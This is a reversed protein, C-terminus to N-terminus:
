TVNEKDEVKTDPGIGGPIYGSVWVVLGWQLFFFFVFPLFSGFSSLLSFHPSALSLSLRLVGFAGALLWIAPFFSGERSGATPLQPVHALLGLAAAWSCRGRDVASASVVRVECAWQFGKKEVLHELRLSVLSWLPCEFRACARLTGRSTM